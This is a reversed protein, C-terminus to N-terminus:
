INSDVESFIGIFAILPSQGLAAFHRLPYRFVLSGVSPQTLTTKKLTVCLPM